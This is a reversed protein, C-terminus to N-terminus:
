PILQLYGETTILSSHGLRQSIVYIHTGKKVELSAWRHRLSHFGWRKQGLKIIAKELFRPYEKWKFLRGKWEMGKICDPIPIKRGVLDSNRSKRTYLVIEDGLVDEFRFKLAENVRCGSELCFDILLAEIEGCSARVANIQDDPPIYKM